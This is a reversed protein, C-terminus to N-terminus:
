FVIAKEVFVKVVHNVKGKQAYARSFQDYLKGSTLIDDARGWVRWGKQQLPDYGIMSLQPNELLNSITQPSRVDVFVLHQDDLIGLSGKPSVNPKGARDCTAVMAPKIQTILSKLDETLGEM